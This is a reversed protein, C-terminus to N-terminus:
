QDDCQDVSRGIILPEARARNTKEQVIQININQKWDSVCEFQISEPDIRSLQFVTVAIISRLM